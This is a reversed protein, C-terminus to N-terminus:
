RGAGLRELSLPDHGALLVAGPASALERVREYGRRMAALDAFIAFPRDLELEEYFHVADSTIVVPGSAASAVTVLQGPSHGGVEITRVGPLVEEEGATTRAGGAAVAAAIAEVEAPEVHSRDLGRAGPDTWAELEARPVIWEAAPFAGLNGVHDYHFHSVIVADVQEPSVGLRALALLPEVECTRGRRAAVAPDFGTDVLVTREGDRLLWFFYAMEIEADPEGHAQFDHFLRSKPARLSGFRIASVEWPREAM